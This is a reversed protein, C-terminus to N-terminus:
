SVPVSVFKTETLTIDAETVASSVVLKAVTEASLVELDGFKARAAETNDRVGYAYVVYPLAGVNSQTAPWLSDAGPTTAVQSGVFRLTNDPQKAFICYVVRSLNPVSGVLSLDLSGQARTASIDTLSVVSKTLKIGSLEVEATDNSYTSVGYNLSVFRNRSSVSGIKKIAIVPAMVAALQSMLKLRARAAIQLPTSPNLVVPQYQREIVEGNRIAFVSGGLKGTKVASGYFKAM